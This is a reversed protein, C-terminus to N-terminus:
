APDDIGTLELSLDWLERAAKDDYSHPASPAQECDVFYKGTVGALEEAAALYVPTEAGEEPSKAILRLLPSVLWGIMRNDSAIHTAIFGPHLANVTVKSPDLRRALEHTFLLNALKSQGYAEFPRYRKEFQLDDFHMKSNRHSTSAVNIIRAPAGAELMDLLLLTASFYGLHNLAFTMELGAQNEHRTLFFEGANNILIDLRSFREHVERAFRRIDIQDALDVAAYDIGPNGTEGTIWEVTSECKKEDRSAVIVRSGLQALRLAVM